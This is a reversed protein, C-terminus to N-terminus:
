LRSRPTAALASSSSSSTSSTAVTQPISKKKKKAQLEIFKTAARAPDGSEGRRLLM